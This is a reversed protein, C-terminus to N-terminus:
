VDLSLFFSRSHNVSLESKTKAEEERRRAEDINELQRQKKEFKEQRDKELDYRIDLFWLSDHFLNSCNFDLQLIM